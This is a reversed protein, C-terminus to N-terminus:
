DFKPETIIPEVRIWGNTGCFIEWGESVNRHRWGMVERKMGPINYANVFEQLFELVDMGRAGFNEQTFRLRIIRKEDDVYIGDAGYSKPDEVIDKSFMNLEAKELKM